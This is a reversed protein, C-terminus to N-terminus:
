DVHFHNNWTGNSRPKEDCYSWGNWVIKQNCDKTAGDSRGISKLFVYLPDSPDSAGSPLKRLRLDVGRRNEGHSGNIAHGPESGGSIVLTCAQNFSKCERNLNLLMQITQEPLFALSTCEPTTERFQAESCPADNRNTHIGSPTLRALVANHSQVRAAYSASSGAPPTAASQTGVGAGQGAGNVRLGATNIRGTVVDPNIALMILVLAFMLFLYFLSSSVIGKGKRIRAEADNGVTWVILSVGYVVRVFAALGGAVLFLTLLFTAVGYLSTEQGITFSITQEFFNPTGQDLMTYIKSDAM